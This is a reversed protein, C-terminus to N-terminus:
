QDYRLKLKEIIEPYKVLNQIYKRSKMNKIHAEINVAQKRSICDVTLFIHWDSARATFCRLFVKRKHWNIRVDINETQGIYYRDLSPSYLIYVQFM